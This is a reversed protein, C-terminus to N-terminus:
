EDGFSPISYAMPIFTMSKCGPLKSFAHQKKENNM